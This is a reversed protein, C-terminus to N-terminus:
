PPTLKFSAFYKEINESKAKDRAAIAAVNFLRDGVIFIRSRSVMGMSMDITIERAPRGAFEIKAESLMPGPANAVAGNRANDLVQDESGASAVTGAPYDVVTVDYIANEALIQFTRVTASTGEGLDITEEKAHPKAPFAVSFGLGEPKFEEWGDAACPVAVLVVALLAAIVLRM